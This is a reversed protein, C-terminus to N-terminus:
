KSDHSRVINNFAEVMCSRCEATNPMVLGKDCDHEINYYCYDAKLESEMESVEGQRSCYHTYLTGVRTAGRVVM